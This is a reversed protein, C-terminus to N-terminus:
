NRRSAPCAFLHWALCFFTYGALFHRHVSNEKSISSVVEKYAEQGLVIGAAQSVYVVASNRKLLVSLFGFSTNRVANCCKQDCESALLQM